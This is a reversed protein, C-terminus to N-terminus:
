IACNQVSAVDFGDGFEVLIDDTELQFVGITIM